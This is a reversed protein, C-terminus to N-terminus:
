PNLCTAPGGKVISCESFIAFDLLGTGPIRQPLTVSIRQQADLFMGRAEIRIRGPIDRPEDVSVADSFVRVEVNRVDAYLARLRLRYLRNPDDLSIVLPATSQEERAMRMASDQDWLIDQPLWGVLSAQLVSCGGCDDEWWVRVRAFDTATIPQLPDYLAVELFDDQAVTAYVASESPMVTREWRAGNDLTGNGGSPLGDESIGAEYLAEELATEAAYYATVANDIVRSQQLSSLILSSLGVSSIIVTTM